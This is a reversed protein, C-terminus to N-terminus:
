GLLSQQINLFLRHQWKANSPFSNALITQTQIFLNRLDDILHIM